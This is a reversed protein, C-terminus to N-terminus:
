SPVSSTAICPRMSTVGRDDTVLSRTRLGLGAGALGIERMQRSVFFQAPGPSCDRGAARGPQRAQRPSATNAYEPSVAELDASVGAPSSPRSWQAAGSRRVHSRYGRRRTRRIRRSVDRTPCTSRRPRRLLLSHQDAARRSRRRAAQGQGRRSFITVSVADVTRVARRWM